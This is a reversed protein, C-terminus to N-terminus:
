QANSVRVLGAKTEIVQHARYCRVNILNNNLEFKSICAVAFNVSLKETNDSQVNEPYLIYVLDMIKPSFDSVEDVLYTRMEGIHKNVRLIYSDGHRTTVKMVDHAYDRDLPSLTLARSVADVEVIHNNLILRDIGISYETTAV